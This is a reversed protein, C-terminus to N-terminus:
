SMDARLLYGQGECGFRGNSDAGAEKGPCHKEQSLDQIQLDNMVIFLFLKGLEFQRRSLRHLDKSGFIEPMRERSGRVPFDDNGINTKSFLIIM